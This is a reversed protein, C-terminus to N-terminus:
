KRSPVASNHHREGDEGGGGFAAASSPLASAARHLRVARLDVEPNQPSSECSRFPRPQRQLRQSGAWLCSYFPMNLNRRCEENIDSFVAARSLCVWIHASCHSGEIM